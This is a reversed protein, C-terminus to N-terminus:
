LGRFAIFNSDLGEDLCDLGIMWVCSGYMVM